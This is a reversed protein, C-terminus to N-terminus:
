LFRYPKTRRKLFIASVADKGGSPHTLALKGDFQGFERRFVIVNQVNQVNQRIHAVRRL